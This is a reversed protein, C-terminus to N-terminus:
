PQVFSSPSMTPLCALGDFAALVDVPTNLYAHRIASPGTCGRAPRLDLLVAADDPVREAVAQEVSDEAPPDLQRTVVEFGLRADEDLRLDTTSGARATIGLVVYDAGLDAALYSGASPFRVGPVLEMPVRQVHGNHMMLVIREDSGSLERLLRVTEAQYVDRSSPLLPPPNPGSLEDLERLHEDIRLAGLAHHRAILHEREPGPRLADLRLLLRTLAATAANRDVTSLEAYRVPAAGNNAAVYPQTAEMAADVLPVQDPAYTALYDRVRRLAPLGSGGSGSVDLGAFRVRGGAANHARLWSLMDHMETSEGFRFTFGDRAVTEVDGPGGRIWDDVLQGEAFGSEFALVGFDLETVLFRLIRDRLLNFERIHHNNEGIAVVHADGILEAVASPDDPPLWRVTDPLPM